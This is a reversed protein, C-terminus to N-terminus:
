VPLESIAHLTHPPEGQAHLETIAPMVMRVWKPNRTCRRDPWRADAERVFAPSLRSLGFDTQFVTEHVISDRMTM